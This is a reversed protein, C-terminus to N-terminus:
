EYDLLFTASSSFVGRGISRNKIADPEGRVYARFMIINSGAQLRYKSSSQNLPLLEGVTNELGIAIGNAGGSNIALLGPLVASETGSFSVSVTEGLSLDCEMLQLFFEKGPTRQNLYLYKDIVTGFDLEINEEGPAIVCPEAVLVGSYNVAVTPAASWCAHSIYFLALPLLTKKM